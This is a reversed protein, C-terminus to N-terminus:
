VNSLLEAMKEYVAFTIAQGCFVRPVRASLGRTFGALGSENYVTLFCQVFGMSKGGAGPKSSQTVSKVVDVPNNLVVSIAGVIGGAAMHTLTGGNQPLAAKMSPYLAMRIGVSSAQRLSTSVIGIFLGRLGQTAIITRSAALINGYKNGGGVEGHRLVKIRETPTTWVAAEIVGALLGSWLNIQAPNESGWTAELVDKIKSYATFRIAAKGSTQLMFPTTGYYLARVGGERAIKVIADLPGSFKGPHMQMNTKAVDLPMTGLVEFVGATAGAVAHKWGALKPLANTSKRDESLMGSTEVNRQSARRALIKREAQEDKQM